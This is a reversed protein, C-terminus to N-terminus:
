KPEDDNSEQNSFDNPSTQFREIRAQTQQLTQFLDTLNGLYELRRKSPLTLQLPADIGALLEGDCGCGIPCNASCPVSQLVLTVAGNNITADKVDFTLKTQVVIRDGPQLQTVQRRNPTSM